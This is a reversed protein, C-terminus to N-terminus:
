YDNRAGKGGILPEPTKWASAPEPALARFRLTVKIFHASSLACKPYPVLKDM